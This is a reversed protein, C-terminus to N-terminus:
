AEEEDTGDASFRWAEGAFCAFPGKSTDIVDLPTSDSNHKKIELDKTIICVGHTGPVYAANDSNKYGCAAGTASFDIVKDGTMEGKSNFIYVRSKTGMANHRTVVVSGWPKTDFYSIDEGLMSNESVFNGESDFSRVADDCIVTFHGDEGSSIVYPMSMSYTHTKISDAQGVKYFALECLFEAGSEYVSALLVYEGDRSIASDLVYKNKIISMTRRLAANYVETVYKAENSETTVIYAGTDSVSASVIPMATEVDIVRTVSNYLSYAVGGIDYALLYKDSSVAAPNSFTENESLLEVGTKDYLTVLSNGVVAFGERFHEFIAKDQSDYKVVSQGEGEGTVSDFDRILYVFNDYTIHEDYKVLLFGGLFVLVLLMVFGLTRYRESVKKYYKNEQPKIEADVRIIEPEVENKRPGM